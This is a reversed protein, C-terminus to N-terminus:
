FHFYILFTDEPFHYVESKDHCFTKKGRVHKVQQSFGDFFIESKRRTM